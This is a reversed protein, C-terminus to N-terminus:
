PYDLKKFVQNDKFSSSLTALKKTCRFFKTATLNSRVAYLSKEQLFFDKHRSVWAELYRTKRQRSFYLHHGLPIVERPM